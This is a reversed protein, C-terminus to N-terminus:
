RVLRKMGVLPMEYFAQLLLSLKMRKCEKKMGLKSLKGGILGGFLQVDDVGDGSSSGVYRWFM